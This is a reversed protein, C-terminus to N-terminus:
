FRQLQMVRVQTGINIDTIHDSCTSLYLKLRARRLVNLVSLVNLVNLV